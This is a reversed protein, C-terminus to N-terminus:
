YKIIFEQYDDGSALREEKIKEIEAFTQSTRLWYLLAKINKEEGQAVIEVRGDPLNRVYGKLDLRDAEQKVNYRLGVGQVLGELVLRIKKVM